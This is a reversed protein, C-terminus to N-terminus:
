ANERTPMSLLRQNSNFRYIEWEYSYGRKEKCMFEREMLM